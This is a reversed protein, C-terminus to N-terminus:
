IRPVNEQGVFSMFDSPRLTEELEREAATDPSADLNTNM